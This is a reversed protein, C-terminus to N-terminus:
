PGVGAAHAGRRGAQAPVGAEGAQPLDAWRPCSRAGPFGLFLAKVQNARGGWLFSFPLSRPQIQPRGGSQPDEPAMWSEPGRLRRLFSSHQPRPLSPASSAGPRLQAGVRGM